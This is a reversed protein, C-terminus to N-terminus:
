EKDPIYGGGLIGAHDKGRGSRTKASDKQLSDKSVTLKEKHIYSQVEEPKLPVSRVAVWYLSDKKDALSDTKVNWRNRMQGGSM